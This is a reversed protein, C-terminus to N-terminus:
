PCGRIASALDADLRGGVVGRRLHHGIVLGAVQRVALLDGGLRALQQAQDRVQLQDLQRLAGPAAAAGADVVDDLRLHGVLEQVALELVDLGGAGGDHGVAVGPQRSWSM